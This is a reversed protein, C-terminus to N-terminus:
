RQSPPVSVLQAVRWFGDLAQFEEFSHSFIAADFLKRFLFLAGQGRFSAGTLIEFADFM